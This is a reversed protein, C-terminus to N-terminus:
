DPFLLLVSNTTTMESDFRLMIEPRTEEARLRTAIGFDVLKLIATGEEAGEESEFLFNEPKVDRHIVGSAHCYALAALMQRAYNRAAETIRLVYRKEFLQLINTTSIHNQQKIILM